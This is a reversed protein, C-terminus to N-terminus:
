SVLGLPGDGSVLRLLQAAAEEAGPGPVFEWGVVFCPAGCDTVARQCHVVKALVEIPQDHGAAVRIVHRSGPWFPATTQVKMGRISVDAILVRATSGFVEASIQSAPEVRVARRRNLVDPFTGGSGKLLEM